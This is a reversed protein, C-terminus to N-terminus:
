RGAPRHDHVQARLGLVRDPRPRGALLGRDEPSALRRPRLAVNSVLTGEGAAIRAASPSKQTISTTPRRAAGRAASTRPRSGPAPRPNEFTSPSNSIVQTIQIVADSCM